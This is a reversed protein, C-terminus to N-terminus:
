VGGDIALIISAFVALACMGAFILLLIEQYETDEVARLNDSRRKIERKIRTLRKGM